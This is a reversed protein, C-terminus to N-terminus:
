GDIMEGKGLQSQYIEQYISCGRLLESHTGQAAIKGNDLVIITDVDIISSIRQAIFFCTIGRLYDKIAQQINSETTADVASTCDDLILIAPKILVARAIAIRQKQGGSLNVGRQGIKTDYRDPLSGIFQDIQAIKAAMQVQENSAEPDGFRINDAITGSFLTPQQPVIGVQKRLEATSISGINYGDIYISGVSPRYAKTLLQAITSKGSGTAGIIGITHGASISFSIDTLVNVNGHPYAFTVNRFAVQGQIELRMQESQREQIDAGHLIENIREASSKSRSLTMMLTGVMLLSFLIQIVYNILAVLDGVPLGQYRIQDAGLWLILVVCSNLILMTIPMNLAMVRFATIASKSFNRNVKAFRQNEYDSRVFAKVVRISSVNEQVVMNVNDLRQQVKAFLPTTYRIFLMSIIILGIVIATIIVALPPSLIFAMVLSGIAILPARVFARLLMHVLQQLQVVDNTLRTILSGTKLQDLKAFSFTQIKDFLAARLDASFHMAAKSSFVTCAFGGAMGVLALIVMLAGTARIHAVDGAIVGDNIISAMLMPQLLDMAVEIIMCAPALLVIKWYPRLFKTLRIM